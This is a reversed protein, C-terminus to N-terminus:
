FAHGYVFGHVFARSIAQSYISFDVANNMGQILNNTLETRKELVANTQVFLICMESLEHNDTWVLRCSFCNDIYVKNTGMYGFKDMPSHCKPCSYSSSEKVKPQLEISGSPVNLKASLAKLFPVLKMQNLLKGDCELCHYAQVGNFTGQKM